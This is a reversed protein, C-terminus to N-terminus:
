RATPARNSTTSGSIPSRVVSRPRAVPVAGAPAEECMGNKCETGKGPCGGCSQGCGDDGCQKGACDPVCLPTECVGAGNCVQGGNFSGCIEDIGDPGCSKGECDAVDVEVCVDNICEQTGGCSGCSGDCNPVCIPLCSTGDCTENDACVGCSGGCGDGGCNGNCVGQCVCAGGVCADQGGCSGCSGGCGDGGCIKGDCSPFVTADLPECDDADLTGDNDRGDCIDASAPKGSCETLGDPRCYRSSPCMGHENIIVCPTEIAKEM